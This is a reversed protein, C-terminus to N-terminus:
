RISSQRSANSRVKKSRPSTAVALPRVHQKWLGAFGAVREEGTLAFPWAAENRKPAVIREGRLHFVASLPLAPPGAAFALGLESLYRRVLEDGRGVHMAGAEVYLGDDFPKRLTLVRGGPRARAEVVLVDRGQRTLADAAALGALGAGIVLIPVRHVPTVPTKVPPAKVCSAIMASGTTALFRRRSWRSEM